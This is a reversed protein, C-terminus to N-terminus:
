YRISQVAIQNLRRLCLLADRAAQADVPAQGGTRQDALYPVAAPSTLVATPIGNPDLVSTLTLTLM